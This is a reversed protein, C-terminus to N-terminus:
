PCRLRTNKIFINRSGTADRDIVLGCEDCSYVELKTRKINGCRGCTCSTYSEDVIILKKNYMSCKYKLKEKFSHFSFMMLLRKTIRALKKGKVMQSVRFDPLLIVDYNEVLFSITKWHLEAVLNKVKRWLKSKIKYTTTKDIEVLLETLEIHADEGIFISEGKPDYGVLFKRVGPDLSIIRDGKSIFKVQSENRRDEEPFWNRDVPYHLFYRGTDKEYIIEIGKEITTIDSFSIRDRRGNSNTFWYNSKIKRIFSPFGKDEFHLYETPKKKSMFKMEFHKVNGNKYNSIASNLSSTFKDSAGRPLRSHVEKKDWWPPIPTEDREENYEFSQFVLHEFEEETYEYKRILQRISINSYKFPETIKDAGYHQYVIAVTANYYWRYQEFMVELKKTEEQNPFLRIKLTKLAVPPQKGYKTKSQIVESDMSDPLSFQSSQFSTMLSNKKQPHKKKISFWSKGMPAKLSESSLSLVSDVCDIKTPLWLKESIEKSHPTWFPTLVKEKLTLAQDLIKLSKMTLINADLISLKDKWIKKKHPPQSEVIASIEKTTKNNNDKKLQCLLSMQCSIDVTTEKQELVNLSEKIIGIKSHDLLLKSYKQSKKQDLINKM